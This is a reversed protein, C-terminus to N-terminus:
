QRTSVSRNFFLESAEMGLAPVFKVEVKGKPRHVEVRLSCDSSRKFIPPSSSSFSATGPLGGEIGRTEWRDRDVISGVNM